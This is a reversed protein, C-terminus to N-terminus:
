DHKITEKIIGQLLPYNSINNLIEKSDENSKKLIDLDRPLKAVKFNMDGHQRTGFLDGSGRLRFDEESLKFGDHISEMIKLRETEKNSVLLCYSQMDNRGVRGRLQHLTALGFREADFIVIMTANKVDVGVEIVTTSILIDIDHNKYKNMIDDKEKSKMKGHLIDINYNKFALSFKDKLKKIDLKEDESEILPSVIYIQHDEKLEKYIMNLYEDTQNNKFVKTIIEKRGSIKSEIISIDMDGFLTLAYTRPIPTASLYLVDVNSGKNRLNKRQNVGFRHQEDTVVLGLNNFELDENLLSHTGVVMDISGDKVGEYIKDKESKKTSSTILAVNVNFDKFLKTMTNYHQIALIETPAMLTSQYNNLKYSYMTILSVITKGSGVDGEVLRNMREPSSMDQFIDELANLQDKTLSYELSSIFDQIKNRDVNISTGSNDRKDKLYNMKLSYLFLEEYRLRDRSDDLDKMSTPNNAKYIAEKKTIFNYKNSLEEPIYDYVYSSKLADNIYTNLKKSTLGKVLHYVPIVTTGNGIDYLIIDSATITNKEYKGIVTIVKGITLKDKLFVRNFITVTVVKNDIEMQFLLRNMKKFYSVTPMSLIKGSVTVKEEELSTKRLLKYKYPYYSVLDEVSYIDLKNLKDITSPGIGKITDLGFM